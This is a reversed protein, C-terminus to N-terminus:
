EAEAEAETEREPDCSPRKPLPSDVPPLASGDADGATQVTETVTETEAPTETETEAPTETQGGEGPVVGECPTNEAKKAAEKERDGGKRKGKPKKRGLGRKRPPVVAEFAERGRMGDHLAKLYAHCQNVTLVSSATMWGKQIPLRVTRVGNKVAWDNTCNKHRNRDVFAGIVYVHDDELGEIEEDADASLYLVKDRPYTELLSTPRIDVGEWPFGPYRDMVDQMPGPTLGVVSVPLPNKHRWAAGYLQSMQQGLSRTEKDTMLPSFQFDMCIIPLPVPRSANAASLEIFHAKDELLRQRKDRHWQAHVIALEKIKAVAAEEGLEDVLVKRAAANRAKREERKKEKIRIRKAQWTPDPVM